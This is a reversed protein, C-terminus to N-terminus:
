IVGILYLFILIGGLVVAGGAVFLMLFQMKLSSLLEKESKSSIIFTPENSGKEIWVHGPRSQSSKATGLVYVDENPALYYEYYKRDGVSTGFTIHVGPEMPELGWTSINLDTTNDNDWDSLLDIVMGIAGFFGGRQYFSKKLTVNFEANTPNVYVSGTDDRAYFPIRREGSGVTDWSYTTRVRGKSDRHRHARYEEITYRYYVCDTQSFPTRIANEPQVAGHIEVLGMAMSRVKSTPTDMILRYKHMRRFGFVIVVAGILVFVASLISTIADM